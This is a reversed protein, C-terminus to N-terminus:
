LGPAKVVEEVPRRYYSGCRARMPSPSGGRYRYVGFLQMKHLRTVHDRIYTMVDYPWLYCTTSLDLSELSRHASCSSPQASDWVIACISTFFAVLFLRFTRFSCILVLKLTFISGWLPLLSIQLLRVSYQTFASLDM